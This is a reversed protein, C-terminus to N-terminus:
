TKKKIVTLTPGDEGAKEFRMTNTNEDITTSMGISAMAPATRCMVWFRMEAQEDTEGPRPKRIKEELELRRLLSEEWMKLTLSGADSV